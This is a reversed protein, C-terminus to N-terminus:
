ARLKRGTLHIFVDELSPHALHLDCLEGGLQTITQTVRVALAGADETYLRFVQIDSPQGNRAAPVEEATTVGALTSLTQLVPTHSSAGSHVGDTAAYEPLRAYVELKTGSPILKKLGVSTDLVLIRGSDMIAIRDCLRDAEEMDHTTLLVTIGQQRLEQIREWLFLRSQPDLNNTPEDLFLVDPTHMLARAVMVRQGMGGSYRGIKEKGRDALGFQALLENARANREKRSVGHYAAHFTLIETVRLSLDLNSKQPVVSIRQKVGIPDAVVDVDMIRAHGNTPLIGTTLIGITTTKGAGNPGLLGFIEGRQVTFSVDDVANVPSKPYRKVLNSVEIASNKPISPM